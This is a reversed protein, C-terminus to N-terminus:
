PVNRDSAKSHRLVNRVMTMINGKKRQINGTADGPGSIAHRSVSEEPQANGPRPKGVQYYQPNDQCRSYMEKMKGSLAAATLRGKPDAVLM